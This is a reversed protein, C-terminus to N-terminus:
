ESLQLGAFLTAQNSIAGAGFSRGISVFASVVNSIDRVADLDVSLAGPTDRGTRTIEYAEGGVHWHDGFARVLGVGALICNRQNGSPDVTYGGGGFVNWASFDKSFWLPLAIQVHGTGFGRSESGAPLILAPAASVSPWSTGQGQDVVRFKEELAIDGSGTLLSHSRQTFALPAVIDTEIGDAVGIDTELSFLDGSAGGQGDIALSGLDIEVHGRTLTDADDLVFPPSASAPFWGAALLLGAAARPLVRRANM